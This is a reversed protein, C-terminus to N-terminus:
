NFSDQNISKNSFQYHEDVDENTIEDMNICIHGESMKKSLLYLYPKLTESDFYEAFQQHVDSLLKM